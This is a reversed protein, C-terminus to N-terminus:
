PQLRPRGHWHGSRLVGAFATAWALPGAGSAVAVRNYSGGGSAREGACVNDQRHSAPGCEVIGGAGNCVRDGPGILLKV